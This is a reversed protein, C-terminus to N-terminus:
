IQEGDIGIVVRSFSIVDIKKIGNRLFEESMAKVTSGTTIVDDVILVRRGIIGPTRQGDVKFAGKVNRQRQKSSLGIQPRTPKIRRILLPDIDLGTQKAIARALLTSQNYRRKWQRGWHLPVPVLVPRENGLVRERTLDQGEIGAKADGFLEAGALVMMRACFAAVEERDGFKLRSVLARAVGNHVCASRARAFPPPDAIAQASLAGKGLYYEFPLGLVPCLPETIPRLKVWCKPCLVDGAGTVARCHVCAPPYIHDLLGAGIRKALAGINAFDFKGKGRLKVGVINEGLISGGLNTGKHEPMKKVSTDDREM